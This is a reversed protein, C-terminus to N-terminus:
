PEWGTAQLRRVGAKDASWPTGCATYGARAGQQANCMAHCVADYEAKTSLLEPTDLDDVCVEWLHSLRARASNLRPFSKDKRIERGESVAQAYYPATLTKKTQHGEKPELM